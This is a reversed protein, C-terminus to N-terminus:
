VYFSHLLPARMVLLGLRDHPAAPGGRVGRRRVAYRLNTRVTKRDIRFRDVGKELTIMGLRSMETGMKGLAASSSSSGVAVCAAGEM